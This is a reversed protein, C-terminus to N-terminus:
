KNVIVKRQMIVVVHNVYHKVLVQTANIVNLIKTLAYKTINILDVIIVRMKVHRNHLIKLLCHICKVVNILKMIVIKNRVHM